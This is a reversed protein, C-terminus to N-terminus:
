ARPCEDYCARLTEVVELATVRDHFKEQEERDSCALTCEGFHFVIRDTAVPHNVVIKFMLDLITTKTAPQVLRYESMNYVLKTSVLL